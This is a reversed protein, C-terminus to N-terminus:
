RCRTTLSNVTYNGRYDYALTALAWGNADMIEYGGFLNPKATWGSHSEEYFRM